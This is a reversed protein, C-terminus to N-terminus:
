RIRQDGGGHYGRMGHLGIFLLYLLFSLMSLLLCVQYHWPFQASMFKGYVHYNTSGDILKYADYEMCNAFAPNSFLYRVLDLGDCYYLVMPEMTQYNCDCLKIEVHKWKPVETLHEIRNHM